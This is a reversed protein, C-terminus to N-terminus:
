LCTPTNALSTVSLSSTNTAFVTDAGNFEQLSKFLASKLDAREVIAEIIIDAICDNINDTCTLLGSKVIREDNSMKGKAVMQTFNLDIDAAARAAIGEFPDFLITKIGNQIVAQAIGRGMTGAGCVCVSQIM